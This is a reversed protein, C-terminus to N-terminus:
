AAVAATLDLIDTGATTQIELTFTEIAFDM